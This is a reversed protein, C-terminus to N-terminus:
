QGGWKELLMNGMLDAEAEVVRLRDQCVKLENEALTTRSEAARLRNRLMVNAQVLAERSGPIFQGTM